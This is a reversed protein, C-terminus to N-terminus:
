RSGTTSKTALLRAAPKPPPSTPSTTRRSMPSPTSLPPDAKRSPRKSRWISAMPTRDAVTRERPRRRRRPKQKHLHAHHPHTRRVRKSRPAPRPSPSSAPCSTRPLWSVTIPFHYFRLIDRDLSRICSSDSVFVHLSSCTSTADVM